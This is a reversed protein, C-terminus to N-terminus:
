VSHGSEYGLEDLPEVAALITCRNNLLVRVSKRKERLKDLHERAYFAFSLLVSLFCSMTGCLLLIKINRM